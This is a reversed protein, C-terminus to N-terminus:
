KQACVVCLEMAPFGQEESEDRYREVMDDFDAADKIIGFGDNMLVIGKMVKLNAILISLGYSGYEGGGYKAGLRPAEKVECSINRFGADALIQPIRTTYNDLYDYKMQIAHRLDCFTQAATGPALDFPLHNLYSFSTLDLLQIYGGHKLVRYLELMAAPWDSASLSGILLSQSVLDFKSIWESPLATAPASLFTVNDPASDFRFQTSSLDIGYVSVTSLVEKSFQLPWAGSGAGSDLVAGDPPITANLNFISDLGHHNRYYWFQKDLRERVEEGSSQIFYTTASSRQQNSM